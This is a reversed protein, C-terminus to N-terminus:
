LGTEKLQEILETQQPDLVKPLKVVVQVLQDGVKSGNVRVGKGTLRLKSHSQTGPPIKMLINGDLTPVEISAGLLADSLRIEQSLIIDNGERKFSPHPQVQIKLLLDGPPGGAALYGKGALRITKGDTIGAPIKFSIEERKDLRQISVIRKTGKIAEEFSIMLTQKLDAGRNVRFGGKRGSFFGELNSFPDAGSFGGGFNRFVESFDFDRFVDEQTYKQRFGEAGFQDYQRRKKEDSLVAYAESVEKFKDEVEPKDKNRDPHYKMALKRYAKKIEEPSAGKPVDLVTYYDKM